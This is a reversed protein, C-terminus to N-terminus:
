VQERRPLLMPTDVFGTAAFPTRYFKWGEATNFSTIGHYAVNEKAHVNRMAGFSPMDGQAPYDLIVYGRQKLSEESHIM